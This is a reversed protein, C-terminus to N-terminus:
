AEQSLQAYRGRWHVLPLEDFTRVRLVQGIVIRHDGGELIDERLCEIWALSGRILPLRNYGEEWEVTAFRDVPKCFTRSAEEQGCALLNVAFHTAASFIPLSYSEDKISWQVLPPSLSLSSFSSVTIGYPRDEGDRTTIISVGTAFHGMAHRFEMPDIVATM